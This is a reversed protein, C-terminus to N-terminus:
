KASLPKSDFTCDSTDQGTTIESNLINVGNNIGNMTSLALSSNDIRNGRCSKSVVVKGIRTDINWDPPSQARFIQSFCLIQWLAITRM